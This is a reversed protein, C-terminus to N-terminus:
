GGGAAEAATRARTLDGGALGILYCAIPAAVRESAHAAVGALELLAEFTDDDPSDLGLETAFRAVWTRADVRRVSGLPVAAAPTRGARGPDWTV